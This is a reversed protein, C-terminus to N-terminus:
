PTRLAHRDLFAVAAAPTQIERRLLARVLPYTVAANLRRGYAIGGSVGPLKLIFPVRRDEAVKMEDPLYPTVHDSLLLVASSDWTGNAEM